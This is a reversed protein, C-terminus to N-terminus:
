NLFRTRFAFAVADADRICDTIVDSSISCGMSRFFVDCWLKRTEDDIKKIQNQDWVYNTLIPARPTKTPPNKESKAKM